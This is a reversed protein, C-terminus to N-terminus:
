QEEEKREAAPAATDEEVKEFAIDPFRELFRDAQAKSEFTITAGAALYPPAGEVCHRVHVIKQRRTARFTVSASKRM